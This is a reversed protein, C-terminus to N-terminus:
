FLTGELMFFYEVIPGMVLAPFFSLAGILLIIGSLLCIFTIGSVPFFGNLSHKKKKKIFSGAIALVLAITIFRGLIMALATTVNYFPTNAMLNKFGSGNNASTSTYAYLIESFSNPNSNSSNITAIASFGLVITIFALLAILALKMESAEIKKGLYEPTRGIILGAIFMTVIIFIILSFLGCGVGGFITEGLQMNVMALMSAIPTLSEHSCNTAGCSVSTTTTAFLSSGVVGFRMEKGEMNGVSAVGRKTINPNGRLEFALATSASIIFILVVSAFISWSHKLNNISKGFYYIQGAPLALILILQVLNTLPSPNEFPHSSNSDTFGGGNTGLLKIAEQSAIPGQVLTQREGEMTSVQVYEKFNQPVGESIFFLSMILSIPLFLYFLLRTIDVWFNGITHGKRRSLSRTLAAAVALGVAPSLFNQLTLVAMQSFYSLTVEGNYSQWNTNTLFSTAINFILHWSLFGQKQPNLPLFPQMALIIVTFTFSILSLWLLSFLYAKWNQEKEIDVKILKYIFKEIPKLCFDLYTKGNPDLVQCLYLGLPKTILLVIAILIFVNALNEWMM